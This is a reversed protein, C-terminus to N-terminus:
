RNQWDGRSWATRLADTGVLSDADVLARAAWARVAPDAHRLDAGIARERERRATVDEILIMLGEIREDSRLPGGSRLPGITVRQQMREFYPSAQRPPCPILAEHVAPALLVVSGTTLVTRLLEVVGRAELEPVLDTVSRGRVAEASLGTIRELWDDWAVIKLDADTLLVGVPRPGASM